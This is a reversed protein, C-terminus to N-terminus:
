LRNFSNTELANCGVFNKIRKKCDVRLTVKLILSANDTFKVMDRLPDHVKSSFRAANGNERVPFNRAM